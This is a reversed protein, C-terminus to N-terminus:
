TNSVQLDLSTFSKLFGAATDGTSTATACTVTAGATDLQIHPASAHIVPSGGVINGTCKWENATAADGAGTTSFTGTPTVTLYKQDAGNVTITISAIKTGTLDGTYNAYVVSQITAGAVTQTLTGGVFQTPGAGTGNGWVVGSGTLATTGAAVVGAAAVGGILQLMSMSRMFHEGLKTAMPRAAM